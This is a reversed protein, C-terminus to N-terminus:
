ASAKADPLARASLVGAGGAAVLTAALWYLFVATWSSWDLLQGVVLASVGGGVYSAFDLFGAVAGVHGRDSFSLPLSTLLLSNIGYVSAGCVGLLIVSLWPSRNGALVFGVMVTAIVLSLGVIGPGERSRFFRDSLWGALLSGGLGFLPLVSAALAAREVSMGLADVLFTPAWLTLGDKIMSSFVCTLAAWRLRPHALMSRVIQRVTARAQNTNSDSAGFGAERPTSRIGALWTLGMGGFVIAPLWFAYRWGLRGVLWGGAAWATLHGLVFCPSFLATIRGRRRADFWSAITKMIAGWGMSQAWGNVGWLVVMLWLWSSTGFAANLAASVLMGVGVFWRANAKQGLTGNILQGVAYVWLFVSGILGVVGRDWGLDSQIAPLAVAINVRCLYFSAYSLWAIVFVQLQWRRFRPHTTLHSLSSM